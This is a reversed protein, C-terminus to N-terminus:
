VLSTFTYGSGTANPEVNVVDALWDRDFPRHVIAITQVLRALNFPHPHIAISRLLDDVRAMADHPTTGHVTAITGQLMLGNSNSIATALIMEDDIALRLHQNENNRVRQTYFADLDNL